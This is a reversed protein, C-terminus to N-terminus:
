CKVGEGRQKDARGVPVRYVQLCDSSFIRHLEHYGVTAMRYDRLSRRHALVHYAARCCSINPLRRSEFSIVHYHKGRRHISLGARVLLVEAPAVTLVKPLSLLKLM